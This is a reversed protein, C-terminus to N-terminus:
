FVHGLIWVFTFASIAFLSGAKALAQLWGASEKASGSPQDLATAAAGLSFHLLAEVCGGVFGPYVVGTAIGILAGGLVAREISVGEYRSAMLAISGVLGLLLGLLMGAASMGLRLAASDSLVFRKEM